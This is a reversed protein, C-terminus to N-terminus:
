QGTEVRQRAMASKAGHEAAYAEIATIGLKDTWILISAGSGVLSAVAVIGPGCGSLTLLALLPLIRIM